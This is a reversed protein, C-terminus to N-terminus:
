SYTLWSGTRVLEQLQGRPITQCAERLELKLARHQMRVLIAKAQAVLDSDLSIDLGSAKELISSCRSESQANVADVLAEELNDKHM